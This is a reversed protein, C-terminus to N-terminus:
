LNKKKYKFTQQYTYNIFQHIAGGGDKALDSYRGTTIDCLALVGRKCWLGLTPEMRQSWTFCKSFGVFCRCATFLHSIAMYLSFLHFRNLITCSKTWSQLWTTANFLASIKRHGTVSFAVSAAKNHQWVNLFIHEHKEIKRKKLELAMVADGWPLSFISFLAFCLQQCGASADYLYFGM